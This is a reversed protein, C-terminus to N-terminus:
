VNGEPTLRCVIFTKYINEVVSDALGCGIETTSAWM